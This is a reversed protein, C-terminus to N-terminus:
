NQYHRLMKKKLKFFIKMGNNISNKINSLIPKRVNMASNSKISYLNKIVDIM